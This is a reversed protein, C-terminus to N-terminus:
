DYVMHPHRLVVPQFFVVWVHKAEVTPPSDCGVLRWYVNTIVVDVWWSFPKWGLWLLLSSLLCVMSEPHIKDAAAWLCKHCFATSRWRCRDAAGLLNVIHNSVATQLLVWGWCGEAKEVANLPTNFRYKPRRAQDPDQWYCATRWTVGVRGGNGGREAAKM